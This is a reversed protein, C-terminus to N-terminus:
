QKSQYQRHVIVGAVRGREDRQVEWTEENEGQAKQRQYLVFLVLGAIILWGWEKM